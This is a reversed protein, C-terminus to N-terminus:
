MHSKNLPISETKKESNTSENVCLEYENKNYYDSMKGPSWWVFRSQHYLKETFRAIATITVTYPLIHEMAYWPHSM